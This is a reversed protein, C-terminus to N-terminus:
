LRMERAWVTCHLLSGARAQGVMRSSAVDPLEKRWSQLVKSEKLYEKCPLVRFYLLFPSLVALSQEVLVAAATEATRGSADLGQLRAFGPSSLGCCSISSPLRPGSWHLLSGSALTLEGRSVWAEDMILCKSACWEGSRPIYTSFSGGLIQTADLKLCLCIDSAKVANWSSFDRLERGSVPSIAWFRNEKWGRELPFFNTEICTYENQTNRIKYKVFWYWSETM